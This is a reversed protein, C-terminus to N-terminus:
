LLTFLESPEVSKSKGFFNDEDATAIATHSDTAGGIGFKYPNMGFKKELQLGVESASNCYNERYIWTRYM